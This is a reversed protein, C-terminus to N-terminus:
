YGREQEDQIESESREDGEEKVDGKPNFFGTVNNQDRGEYRRPRNIVGVEIGFWDELDFGDEDYPQKSAEFQAKLFWLSNTTLVSKWFITSEAFEGEIVTAVWLIYNNGSENAVAIKSSEKIRVIYNGEPLVKMSEVDNLHVNIRPM